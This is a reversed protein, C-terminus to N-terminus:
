GKTEEVSIFPYKKHLSNRFGNRNLFIFGVFNNTFVYNDFKKSNCLLFANRM